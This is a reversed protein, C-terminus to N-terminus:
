SRIFNILSDHNDMFDPEADVQTGPKGVAKSLNNAPTPKNEVEVESTQTQTPTSTPAPVPTNKENILRNELDRVAMLRMLPNKISFIDNVVQPNTAFEYLVRSSNKTQHLYELIYSEKELLDSLGEGFAAEVTQHWKNREEPTPYWSNIGEDIEKRHAMEEEQQKSYAEYEERMKADREEMLKNVRRSVLEDIYADDTDFDSRTKLVEPHEIGSLRKELDEFKKKWESIQSEYKDKQRGLQRQFSYRAQDLESPKQVEVPPPTQEAVQESTQEVSQENTQEAPTSEEVTTQTTEEAASEESKIDNILEDVKM